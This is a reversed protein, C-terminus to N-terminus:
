KRYSAGVLCGKCPGGRNPDAAYQLLQQRDKGEWIEQLSQDPFRVGFTAEHFWQSCCAGIRGDWLVVLRQWPQSCKKRKGSNDARVPGFRIDDYMGEFVEAMMGVELKNARQVTMNIRIRPRNPLANVYHLNAKLKEFSSKIRIAEYTKKTAGDISVILLDLGADALAKLRRKSFAVLNTNLITETYGLEKGLKVMEILIPSLGAEGRFNYKVSLAGLKRAEILAAKAVSRKMMGQFSSDFSGTGDENDGFPCQVCALNCMGALELDLHCPGRLPLYPALHFKARYALHKIM